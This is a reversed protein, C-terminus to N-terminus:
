KLHLKNKRKKESQSIVSTKVKKEEKSKEKEYAAFFEKLQRSSLDYIHNALTYKRLVEDVTMKSIKNICIDYIITKLKTLNTRVAYYENCIKSRYEPTFSEMTKLSDNIINYLYVFKDKYARKTEINKLPDDLTDQGDDEPTTTAGMDGGATANPDDGAGMDTGMADLDTDASTEQGDDQMQQDTQEALNTDTPAPAMPKDGEGTTDGTEGGDPNNEEEATGDVKALNNLGTTLADAELAPELDIFLASETAKSKSECAELLSGNKYIYENALKNGLLGYTIVSAFSIDNRIDPLGFKERAKLIKKVADKNSKMEAIIDKYDQSNKEAKELMKQLKLQRHALHLMYTKGYNKATEYSTLYPEIKEPTVTMCKPLKKYAGENAEEIDLTDSLEEESLEVSEDAIDDNDIDESDGFLDPMDKESWDTEQYNSSEIGADEIFLDNDFM